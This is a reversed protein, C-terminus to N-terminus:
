AMFDEIIYKEALKYSDHDALKGALEKCKQIMREDSVAIEIAAALNKSTLNTRWISEPAVGLRPVQEAFYYQDTMHPIIVQPVGARAATATTGSGGHHVIAAMEPFLRPHSSKGVVYCNQGLERDVGLNALGSALLVRQGALKAAEVVIRTTKEPESAGMSGFGIYIPKPGSNIFQVLDDDLDDNQFIPLYGTHYYKQKIDSPLISYESDCALLIKEGLIHEWCDQVPPLGLNKRYNNIVARYSVNFM